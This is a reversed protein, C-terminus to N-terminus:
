GRIEMDTTLAVVTAIRHSRQGLCGNADLQNHATDDPGLWQLLSLADRSVM